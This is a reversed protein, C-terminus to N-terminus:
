LTKMWAHDLNNRVYLPLDQLTRATDHVVRVDIQIGTNTETSQLWIHVYLMNRRTHEPIYRLTSPLLKSINVSAGDKPNFIQSLLYSQKSHTEKSPKNKSGSYPPSLNSQLMPLSVDYQWMTAYWLITCNMIVAM